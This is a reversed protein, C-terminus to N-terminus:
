FFSLRINGAGDSSMKTNPYRQLVSPSFVLRGSSRFIDLVMKDGKMNDVELVTMLDTTGNVAILEDGPLIGIDKLVGLVEVFEYRGRKNIRLKGFHNFALIDQKGKENNLKKGDEFVTVHSPTESADSSIDESTSSIRDEKVVPVPPELSSSNKVSFVEQPKQSTNVSGKIIPTKPTINTDGLFTFDKDGNAVDRTIQFFAKMNEFGLDPILAESIENSFSKLLSGETNGHFWIHNMGNVKMYRIPRDSFRMAEGKEGYISGLHVVLPNFTDVVDMVIPFENVHDIKNNRVLRDLAKFDATCVKYSSGNRCKWFVDELNLGEKGAKKVVMKHDGLIERIGSLIQGSSDLLHPCDTLIFSSSVDSSIRGKKRLFSVYQDLSLNAVSEAKESNTVTELESNEEKEQPNSVLLAPTLGPIVDRLGLADKGSVNTKGAATNRIVTFFSRMNIFRPDISPWESVEKIVSKIGSEPGDFYWHNMGRAKLYEKRRTQVKDGDENFASYEHGTINGSVVLVDNILPQENNMDIGDNGVVANLAKLDAKTVRYYRGDETEWMKVPVAFIDKMGSRFHNKDKNLLNPCEEELFKLSVDFSLQKIAKLEHLFPPDKLGTEIQHDIYKRLEGSALKSAIEKKFAEDSVGTEKPYWVEVPEDANRFQDFSYEFTFGSPKTIIPSEKTVFKGFMPQGVTYANEHNKLLETAFHESASASDYDTMVAIEDFGYDKFWFVGKRAHERVVKKLISDKTLSAIRGESLFDDLLLASETMLGGGNGRLDIILKGSANKPIKSRVLSSLDEEEFNEIRLYTVSGPLSEVSVIPKKKRKEYSEHSEAHINEGPKGLRSIGFDYGPPRGIASWHDNNVNNLVLFKNVQAWNLNEPISVGYLAKAVQNIEKTEDSTFAPMDPLYRDLQDYFDARLKREIRSFVTDRFVLPAPIQPFMQNVETRRKRVGDDVTKRYPSNMINQLYRQEQPTANETEKEKQPPQAEGSPDPIKIEATADGTLDVQNMQVWGTIGSVGPEVSPIELEIWVVKQAPNKGNECVSSKNGTFRLLTGANLPIFSENGGPQTLFGVEDTNIKFIRGAFNKTLEKLEGRTDSTSELAENSSNPSYKKNM